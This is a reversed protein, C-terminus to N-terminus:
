CSVKRHEDLSSMQGSGKDTGRTFHFRCTGDLIIACILDLMGEHGFVKFPGYVVSVKDV